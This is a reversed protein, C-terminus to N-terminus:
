LSHLNCEPISWQLGEDSSTGRMEASQNSAVWNKDNVQSIQGIMRQNVYVENVTTGNNNTEKVEIAFKKEKRSM